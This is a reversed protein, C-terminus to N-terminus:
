PGSKITARAKERKAKAEVALKYASYYKYINRVYIVPEQGIRRAVVFEVNNFWRNPDLGQKAAEERMRPIRAPGANYAAFAFLTRNQETLSADNLYRAMLQDMYKVGAHINPELVRIEGVKMSAGTAPMLQMVGIAGVHSKAQQNLRSEQYGQAALMLHDFRYQEGYKRFLAVTQQFKEMEDDARANAMGAANKAFRKISARSMGTKNMVGTVFGNVDAALLPSGKRFAWGVRAQDRLHLDSYLAVKPVNPAWLKALWDDVISIQILGANLMELIDEDELEDPLVTVVVLPKKERALRQNLAALSAFYSTARRVHVERGALDDLSALKPATPGTVVIEAFPDAVPDSFDVLARREDTITINGAAIDGKGAVLDDFLKDRTTPILAVTIPVHPKQGYRRNLQKEFERAADVTVGREAGGDYYFLTRSYPVLVRVLGRDVMKDLDGTWPQQLSNLSRTQEKPADAAFSATALFLLLVALVRM